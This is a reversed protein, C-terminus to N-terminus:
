PKDAYAVWQRIVDVARHIAGDDSAPAPQIQATAHGALPADSFGDFLWQKFHLALPLCSDSSSCLRQGQVIRYSVCQSYPPDPNVIL